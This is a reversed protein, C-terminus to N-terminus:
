LVSPLWLEAKHNCDACKFAPVLEYLELNRIRLEGSVSSSGQDPFCPCVFMLLPSFYSSVSGLM